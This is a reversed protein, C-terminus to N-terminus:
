WVKIPQPLLKRTKKAAEADSSKDSIFYQTLTERGLDVCPVILADVCHIMNLALYSLQHQGRM